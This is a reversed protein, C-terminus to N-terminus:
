QATAEQCILHENNIIAQATARVSRVELLAPSDPDPEPGGGPPLGPGEPPTVSIISGPGLATLRVDANDSNLQRNAQHAASAVSAPTVGDFVADVSISTVPRNVWDQKKFFLWVTFEEWHQAHATAGISNYLPIQFHWAELLLRWSQDKTYAFTKSAM